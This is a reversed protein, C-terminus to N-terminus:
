VIERFTGDFHLSGSGTDTVAVIVLSDPTNNISYGLICDSLAQINIRTRGSVQLTAHGQDMIIGGSYTPNNTLTQVAESYDAWTAGVLTPRWVVKYYLIGTGTLPLLDYTIPEAGINRLGPKLRIGAIVKETTSVTLATNASSIARIQKVDNSSGNSFIACCTISVQSASSTIGTNQIFGRIPLQGSQSWPTTLLNSNSMRHLIIKRGNIVVFFDIINTGLWSFEIGFLQQLSLNLSIGSPNTTGGAGDVKDVNFNAQSVAFDQTVGSTSTRRVVRFETSNTEFFAGNKDDYYGLQKVTNAKIAGM